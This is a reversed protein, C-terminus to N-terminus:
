KEKVRTWTNAVFAMGALWQLLASAALLWGMGAAPRLAQLPEGVARLVLGLNILWFAAWGLAESGRPRELSAKPFMWFVVGFILQSVWGVLFLHFYVPGIVKLVPSIPLLSNLASGLEILLAAVFFVLSSKIFWRTLPPM